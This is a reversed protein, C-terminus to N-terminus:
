KRRRRKGLYHREVLMQPIHQFRFDAKAIKYWFAWDEARVNIVEPWKDRIWPVKQGIGADFYGVKQIISARHTTGSLGILNRERMLNIDFPEGQARKWCQKQRYWLKHQCYVVDVSTNDLINGMVELCQPYLRDDSDLYTIYEGQSLKIGDNRPCDYTGSQRFVELHNFRRCILRVLGSSLYTSIVEKTEDTSNDDVIVIEFNSVTQALVSDVAKAILRARNYVPIIISYKVM